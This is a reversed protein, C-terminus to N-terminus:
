FFIYIYLKLVNDNATCTADDDRTVNNNNNNSNYLSVRRSHVMENIIFKFTIKRLADTYATRNLILERPTVNLNHVSIVSYECAHIYM